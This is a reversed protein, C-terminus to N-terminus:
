TSIALASTGSGGGNFADGYARPDADCRVPTACAACVRVGVIMAAVESTMALGGVAMYPVGCASCPVDATVFDPGVPELTLDFRYPQM